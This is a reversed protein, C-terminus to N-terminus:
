RGLGQLLVLISQAAMGHDVDEPLHGANILAQIPESEWGSNGFPRKGSFDEGEMWVKSALAVFYDRVTRADADNPWPMPTDLWDPEVDLSVTAKKFKPGKQVRGAADRIPKGDAGLKSMNARHVELVAPVLAHELGYQIATGDCVVRLDALEHLLPQRQGQAMAEIVEAFEEGILQIRLLHPCKLEAAQAHALKVAEMIKDHCQKMVASSDISCIGEIPQIDFAKHFESVARLTTDMAM